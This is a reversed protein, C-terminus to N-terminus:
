SEPRDRARDHTRAKGICRAARRACKHKGRARARSPPREPKTGAGPVIQNLLHFLLVGLSYTDSVFSPDKGGLLEPALYLPTGALESSAPALLRGEDVIAIGNPDARSGNEPMLKFAVERDLKTDWARYVDGFAGHGIRELVRLHGWHEVRSTRDAAPSLQHTDEAVTPLSQSFDRYLNAVTAVLRLRDLLAREALDASSEAATWDIASGDLIAGALEAILGDESSAM